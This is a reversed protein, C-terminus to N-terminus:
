RERESDKRLQRPIEESNNPPFVPLAVGAASASVILIVAEGKTKAYHLAM